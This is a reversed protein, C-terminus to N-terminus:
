QDAFTVKKLNNDEPFLYCGSAETNRERYFIPASTSPETDSSAISKIKCSQSWLHIIILLNLTDCNWEKDRALKMSEM